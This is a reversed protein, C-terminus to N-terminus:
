CETCKMAPNGDEDIAKIWNHVCVEARKESFSVDAKDITMNYVIKFELENFLQNESYFVCYSILQIKFRAAKEPMQSGPKWKITKDPKEPNQDAFYIYGTASPAFREKVYYVCGTQVTPPPPKRLQNKHNQYYFSEGSQVIQKCDSPTKIPKVLWFEKNETQNANAAFQLDYDSLNYGLM